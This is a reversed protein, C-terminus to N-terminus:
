LRTLGVADICGAVEEFVRCSAISTTSLSAPGCPKVRRCIPAAIVAFSSQSKEDYLCRGSSATLFDQMLCLRGKMATGNSGMRLAAAVFELAQREYSRASAM